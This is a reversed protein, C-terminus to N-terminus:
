KVGLQNHTYREIFLEADLRAHARMIAEDDFRETDIAPMPLHQIGGKHVLGRHADERGAVLARLTGNASALDAAAARIGAYNVSLTVPADASADAVPEAPLRHMFMYASVALASIAASGVVLAVRRTSTYKITGM